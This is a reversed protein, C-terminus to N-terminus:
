KRIKAWGRELRFLRVVPGSNRFAGSHPDMRGVIPFQFFFSFVGVHFSFHVFFLIQGFFFTTKKATQNM